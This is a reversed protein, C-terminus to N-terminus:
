EKAIAGSLIILETRGADSKDGPAISSDCRVVSAAGNKLRATTKFQRTVIEDAFLTKGDGEDVLTVDSSKQLDSMNYEFQVRIRKESDVSPRAEITTGIQRFTVSNARGRPSYNSGTVQPKNTGVQVSANQGDLASLRLERLSRVRGADRLEQIFKRVDSSSAFETPLNDMRWALNAKEDAKKNEASNAVSLEWVTLVVTDKASDNAATAAPTASASRAPRGPSAEEAHLVCATGISFAVGMALLLETSPRLSFKM